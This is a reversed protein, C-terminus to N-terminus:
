WSWNMPNLANGIAEVGEGIKDGAFDLGQGIKDGAWNLGQDIKDGTWDLGDKIGLVNNDYLYEFGQVAVFGVAAGGLVAWGVPNSVGLAVLATTTLASGAMAGGVGVLTSTGSHTTAEGLTKGDNMMDDAVGLGFGVVSLAPGLGKAFKGIKLGNQVIGPGKGAQNVIVFPNPGDSRALAELVTRIGGFKVVGLSILSTIDASYQGVYGYGGQIMNILWTQWSEPVDEDPHDAAYNQLYAIDQANLNPMKSDINGVMFADYSSNIPKIWSNDIASVDFSGTRANFGQGSTVAKLGSEVNSFLGDLESFIQASAGDFAILKDLKMQSDQAQSHLSDVIGRNAIGLAPLNSSHTLTEMDMALNNLRQIQSRLVEEQLSNSDVDAQYQEPLKNIARELTEAILIVGNALPIYITQFYQKASDYTRGKLGAEAVFQDIGTKIAEMGEIHGRCFSSATSAQTESQDLFM